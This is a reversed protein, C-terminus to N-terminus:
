VVRGEGHSVPAIFLEGISAFDLMPSLVSTIKLGVHDTM